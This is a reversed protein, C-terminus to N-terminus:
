KFFQFVDAFIAFGFLLFMGVTHIIAEVKRPVPKRFIMEILTFLMRSGDLAPLPLLNMVALNASVICIVYSIVAFGSSVADKMVTITTVPGGVADLVAFNGTFIGSVLSGLTALIEYVLFFMFGFSRSLSIFFPLKQPGTVSAIGFGHMMKPQNTTEDIEPIFNGEENYSGLLYDSKKITVKVRKGDRLVVAEVEDGASSFLESVHEPTLINVQKGNFRLFVDGVELVEKNISDEYITTIQPLVQGYATFFIVIIIFGSVLNMLAGSFLVILRKWAAQNNFATPSENGEEDEGEFQCFGGLPIPRISFVEGTKKNTRKFIAPGFGISFELIKFGLLKGATYHGAEHVVVMFMLALLALIVYGINLMVEQFTTALLM